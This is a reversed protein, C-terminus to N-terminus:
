YESISDLSTLVRSYYLIIFHWGYEPNYQFSSVQRVSDCVNNKHKLINSFAMLVRSYKLVDDISQFLFKM